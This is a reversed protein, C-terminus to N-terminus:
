QHVEAQKYALLESTAWLLDKMLVAQYASMFQTSTAAGPPAGTEFLLRRVRELHVQDMETQKPEAPAIEETIRDRSPLEGELIHTDGGARRKETVAAQERWQAQEKESLGDWSMQPHLKGMKDVFREYLTRGPETTDSM